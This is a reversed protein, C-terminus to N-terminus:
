EISIIVEVYRNRAREEETIGVSKSEGVAFIHILKSDIGRSILFAKVKQARAESLALNYQDTGLIDATGIITIKTVINDEIRDIFNQLTDISTQNLTDIDFPFYVITRLDVKKTKNNEKSIKPGPIESVSDKKVKTTNGSNNKTNRVFMSPPTKAKAKEVSKNKPISPVPVDTTSDYDVTKTPKVVEKIETKNIVVPTNNNSTTEKIPVIDNSLPKTDIEKKVSSPNIIKNTDLQKPLAGSNNLKRTTDVTKIKPTLLTDKKIDQAKPVIETTKPKNQIVPDSDYPNNTKPQRGLFLKRNGISGFSNGTNDIPIIYSVTTTPGVWSSYAINIAWPKRPVKYSIGIEKRLRGFQIDNYFYEGGRDSGSTIIGKRFVGMGANVSFRENISYNLGLIDRFYYKTADENFEINGRYELIYYLGFRNKIMLNRTGILIRGASFDEHHKFVAGAGLEWSPSNWEVSSKSQAKLENISILGLILSLVFIYKKM